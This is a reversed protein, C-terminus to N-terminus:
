KRCSVCNNKNCKTQYNLFTYELYKRKFEKLSESRKISLPVANWVSPLISSPLKSLHKYECKEIKYNLSRDFNRIKPLFNDFSNPLKNYTYNYMFLAQNLQCLDSVKLINHKIFLPNSHAVNKTNEICRIARKQM